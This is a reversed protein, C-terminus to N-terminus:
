RVGYLNITLDTRLPGEPILMSRMRMMPPRLKFPVIGIEPAFFAVNGSIIALRRV